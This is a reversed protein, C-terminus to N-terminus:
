RRVLHGAADDRRKLARERGCDVVDFVNDGVGIVADADDLYEELGVDIDPGGVRLHGRDRL